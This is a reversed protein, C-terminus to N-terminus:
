CVKTITIDASGRVKPNQHVNYEYGKSRALERGADLWCKKKGKSTAMYDEGRCTHDSWFLTGGCALHRDFHEFSTAWKKEACVADIRKNPGIRPCDRGVHHM